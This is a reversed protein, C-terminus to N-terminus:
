PAPMIIPNSWRLEDRIRRAIAAQHITSGIVIPWNSGQSELVKALEHPSVISVGRLVRGHNQPNGDVFCRVDASRLAPEGLLKMLLQGTGWVIIPEGLPLAASLRADMADLLVQSDRIYSQMSAVFDAANRQREEPRTNQSPFAPDPAFERRWLGWLAPYLVGPAAEIDKAGYTILSMGHPEFLDQLAHLSFHNIHETNFDQFPAALFESYRAADPVEVYLLGDPKAWACLQRAAGQLDRVHELVHSCLVLDRPEIRPAEFLSGTVIEINFHERAWLASAPSPDLGLVNAFGLQKWQELLGGTACGVDLITAQHDPLFPAIEEATRKLRAQDGPSAGGGTSISAEDYKSHRAYFEDYDHQTAASDAYVFGCLACAVVEYGEALPHGQPLVFSQAHLVQAQEGDCLPCARAKIPTASNM